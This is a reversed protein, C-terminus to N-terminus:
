IQHYKQKAELYSQHAEKETSYRGLYIKRGDSFIQSKWKKGIKDFYYGKDDRNFSNQHQTVSRLNCIRNDSKDRNIHDICDVIKKHVWYYVFQHAAIQQRVKREQFSFRIYGRRKSKVVNGRIGFVEGTEPNCTFGKEIALKIREERTM